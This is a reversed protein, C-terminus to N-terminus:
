RWIARAALTENITEVGSLGAGHVVEVILRQTTPIDTSVWYPQTAGTRLDTIEAGVGAVGRLAYVRVRLISDNHRPIGTDIPTATGATGAHYFYWNDVADLHTWGFGVKNDASLAVDQILLPQGYPGIWAQTAAATANRFAAIAEVFFGEAASVVGNQAGQVRFLLGSSVNPGIGSSIRTAMYGDVRAAAGLVPLRPAATNTPTWQAGRGSQVGLGPVLRPIYDAAQSGFERPVYAQAFGHEDLLHLLPYQGSRPVNLFSARGAGPTPALAASPQVIIPM